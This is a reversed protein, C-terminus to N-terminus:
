REEPLQKKRRRAVLAGLGTILGILTMPEPVAATSLKIDDFYANYNGTSSLRSGLVVSDITGVGRAIPTALGAVGNVYVQLSTPTLVMEFHTWELTRNPAQDLVFWGNTYGAFANRVQWKSLNTTTSGTSDYTVVGSADIKSTKANYAGVAMLADLTGGFTDNTYSRIECYHRNNGSVNTLKMYFDFTITESIALPTVAKYRGNVVGSTTSGNMQAAYTGQYVPTTVITGPDSGTGTIGDWKSFDGTEFGDQFVVAAQSVVSCGLVASALILKKM